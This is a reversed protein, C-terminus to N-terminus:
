TKQARAVPVGQKAKCCVSCKGGGCGPTLLNAKSCTPLCAWTQNLLLFLARQGDGASRGLVARGQTEGSDWEDQSWRGGVAGGMAEMVM